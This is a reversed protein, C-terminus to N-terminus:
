VKHPKACKLGDVQHYRCIYTGHRPPIQASGLSGEEERYVEEFESQTYLSANDSVISLQM